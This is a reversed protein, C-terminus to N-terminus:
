YRPCYVFYQQLMNSEDSLFIVRYDGPTQCKQCGFMKFGWFQGPAFFFCATHSLIGCGAQDKIRNMLIARSTGSHRRMICKQMYGMREMLNKQDGDEVIKAEERYVCRTLAM